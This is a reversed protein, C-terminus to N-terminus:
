VNQEDTFHSPQLSLVSCLSRQLSLSRHGPSGKDGAGMSCPGRGAKATDEALSPCHWLKKTEQGLITRWVAVGSVLAEGCLQTAKGQMYAGLWPPASRPWFGAQVCGGGGGIEVGHILRSSSIGKGSESLLM